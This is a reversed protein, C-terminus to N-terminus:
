RPEGWRVAVTDIDAIGLAPKVASEGGFLVTYEVDAISPVDIEERQFLRNRYGEYVEGRPHNPACTIVTVDHGERVWKKVREVMAPIPPGYKGPGGYGNYEVLVGDWDVAITKSSMERLRM